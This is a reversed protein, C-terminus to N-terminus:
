LESLATEYEKAESPTLVKDLRILIPGSQIMYQTLMPMDETVREIYERRNTADEESAFVEITNQESPEM